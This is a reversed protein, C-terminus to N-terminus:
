WMDYPNVIRIMQVIYHEVRRPAASCCATSNDHIRRGPTRLVQLCLKYRAIVVFYPRFKARRTPVARQALKYEKKKWYTQLECM